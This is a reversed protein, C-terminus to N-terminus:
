GIVCQAEKGSIVHLRLSVEDPTLRSWLLARCEWAGVRSFDIGVRAYNAVILTLFGDQRGAPHRRDEDSLETARPGSGHTHAEVYLLQGHDRLWATIKPQETPLIHVWGWTAETAPLLLSTLLVGQPTAYGGWLVLQERRNRGNTQLHETAQALLAAPFLISYPPAPRITRGRQVVLTHMEAETLITRVDM